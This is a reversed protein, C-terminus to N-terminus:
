ALVELPCPFTVNAKCWLIDPENEQGICGDTHTSGNAYHSRYGYDEITEGTLVKKQGGEGDDVMEFAKGDYSGDPKLAWVELTQHADTVLKFPKLWYESSSDDIGTITWSGIPFPRPMVPKGRSGDANESYEVDAPDKMSRTGNLENRVRSFAPISRLLNGDEDVFVLLGTSYSFTSKM